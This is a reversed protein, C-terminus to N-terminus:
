LLGDVSELSSNLNCLVLLLFRLIFDQFELFIHVLELIILVALDIFQLDSVRNGVM